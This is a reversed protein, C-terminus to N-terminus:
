FGLFCLVVCGSGCSWDKTRDILDTDYAKDFAQAKDASFEAKLQPLTREIKRM